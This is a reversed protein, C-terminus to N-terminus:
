MQFESPTPNLHCIETGEEGRRITVYELTPTLNFITNPSSNRLKGRALSACHLNEALHSTVIFWLLHDGSAKELFGFGMVFVGQSRKITSMPNIKLPFHVKKSKAM